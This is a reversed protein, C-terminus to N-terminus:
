GPSALSQGLANCAFVNTALHELQRNVIGRQLVGIKKILHARFCKCWKATKAVAVEILPVLHPVLLESKQALGAGVPVRRHSAV